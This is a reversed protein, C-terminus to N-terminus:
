KIPERLDRPKVLDNIRNATNESVWSNIIHAAKASEAFNVNTISSNLYELMQFKFKELLHYDKMVFLSNAAKLIVGENGNLLQMLKKYGNLYKTDKLSSNFRFTDQLTEKTKGDAGIMLMLGVSSLSFPSMLM